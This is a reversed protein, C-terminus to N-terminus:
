LERRPPPNASIAYSGAGILTELPSTPGLPGCDRDVGPTLKYAPHLRKSGCELRIRERLDKGLRPTGLCTAGNENWRADISVASDLGFSRNWRPSGAFGYSLPHGDRTFPRGHGCYDGALMRLMTQRQPVTTSPVASLAPGVATPDLEPEPSSSNSASTHGLFHLKYVATGHCAINFVKSDGDTWGTSSDKSRVVYGKDRYRDGTFIVAYGKLVDHEDSLGPECLEVRCGGGDHERVATFRYLPIQRCPGVTAGCTSAPKYQVEEIKLTYHPRWIENDSDITLIIRSGELLKGQLTGTPGKGVLEDLKGDVFGIELEDDGKSLFRKIRLRSAIERDPAPNDTVAVGDLRLERFPVGRGLWAGNVGCEHPPCPPPPELFTVNPFEAGRCIPLSTGADPVGADSRGADRVPEPVATVKPPKPDCSKCDCSPMFLGALGLVGIALGSVKRM